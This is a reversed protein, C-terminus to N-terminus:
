KGMLGKPRVFLVLLLVVFACVDKYSSSIYGASLSELLGLCLGGIIAGPLSGFGGLISVVFDRLDQESIDGAINDAFLTLLDARTRFTEM